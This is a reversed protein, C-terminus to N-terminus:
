WVLVPGLHDSLAYGLDVYVRPVSVRVRRSQGLTKGIIRERIGGLISCLQESLFTGLPDLPKARVALRLCPFPM